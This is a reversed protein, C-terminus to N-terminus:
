AIKICCLQDGFKPAVPRLTVKKPARAPMQTGFANPRDDPGFIQRYHTQNLNNPM